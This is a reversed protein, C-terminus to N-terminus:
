DTAEPEVPLQAALADCRHCLRDAEQEMGMWRLKVILAGINQKSAPAKPAQNSKKASSQLM